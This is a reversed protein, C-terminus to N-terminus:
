ENKRNGEEKIYKITIYQIIMQELTSLTVYQNCNINDKGDPSNYFNIVEVKYRYKNIIKEIFSQVENNFVRNNLVLLKYDEIKKMDSIIENKEKEDTIKEYINM